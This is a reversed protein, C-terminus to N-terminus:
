KKNKMKRQEMALEFQSYLLNLEKKLSEKETKDKCDKIEKILNSIKKRISLEEPVVGANKMIHFAMREEEPVSFYESNDVPKGLGELNDFEKNKIAEKIKKEVIRDFNGMIGPM